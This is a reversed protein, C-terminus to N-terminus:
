RTPWRGSCSRCERRCESAGIPLFVATATALVVMMTARLRHWRCLVGANDLPCPFLYLKLCESFLRVCLSSTDSFSMYSDLLSLPLSARFSPLFSPLRHRACSTKKCTKCARHARRKGRKSARDGTSGSAEVEVLYGCWCLSQTRYVSEHVTHCPVEGMKRGGWFAENQLNRKRYGRGGGRARRRGTLSVILYMRHVVDLDFSRFSVSGWLESVVYYLSFMWFRGINIMHSFVHEDKGMAGSPPRRALCFFLLCSVVCAPRLHAPAASPCAPLVRAALKLILTHSPEDGGRRGGRGGAGRSLFFLPLSALVVRM